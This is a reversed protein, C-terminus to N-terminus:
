RLRMDRLRWFWEGSDVDVHVLACGQEDVGVLETIRASRGVFPDMEDTWNSEGDVARHRGVVVETGVSVPGYAADQDSMGCAQPVREDAAVASAEGSTPRGHDSAMGPRFAINGGTDDTPTLDRIRWFWQRGDVDVHVGPCGDDDIGALEVIRASHGVHDSMQPTWNDDGGVPRHRGLIVASGVRLPGYDATSESRGCPQPVSSPARREALGHPIEAGVSLDRVRWFWRGGDVDIRVGPCGRDDVGSLRTVRAVRGLWRGQREDWNPDGEIFRHRQPVIVTGVRISGYDASSAEQGCAQPGEEQARASAASGIAAFALVAFMM